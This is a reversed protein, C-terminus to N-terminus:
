MAAMGRSSLLEVLENLDAAYITNHREYFKKYGDDGVVFDPPTAQCVKALELPKLGEFDRANPDAGVDLLLSAYAPMAYRAAEHLPTRGKRDVHFVCPKISPQALLFNIFDPNYEYLDKGVHMIWHLVTGYTPLVVTAGRSLLYAVRDVSFNKVALALPTLGENDEEDLDSKKLIFRDLTEDSIDNDSEALHHLYSRGKGDRITCDIDYDLLMSIVQDDCDLLIANHLPTQGDESQANTDAGAQLLMNLIQMERHKLSSDNGEFVCFLASSGDSTCFNVDVGCRLLATVVGVYSYLIAHKLPTFGLDDPEDILYGADILVEITKVAADSHNERGHMIWGRFQELSTGLFVYPSVESPERMRQYTLFLPVIEYLLLGCALSLAGYDVSHGEPDRLNQVPSAGLILLQKIANISRAMIAWHLPTGELRLCLSEIPYYNMTSKVLCTEADASTLMTAIQPMIHDEFVIIWHLPTAGIEDCMTPNAGHSLLLGIVDSSGAMSACLLPTQRRTDLVNVDAGKDILLRVLAPDGAYSAIHLLTALSSRQPNCVLEFELSNVNSCDDALWRSIQDTDNVTLPEGRFRNAQPYVKTKTQRQYNRLLTIYFSSESEVRCEHPYWSPTSFTQPLSKGNAEFIRQGVLHAGDHGHKASEELWKLGEEVDPPHSFSEGFGNFYHRALIFADRGPTKNEDKKIRSLLQKVSRHELDNPYTSTNTLDYLFM